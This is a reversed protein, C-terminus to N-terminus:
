STGGQTPPTPIAAPTTSTTTPIPLRDAQPSRWKGRVAGHALYACAALSLWAGFGIGVHRAAVESAHGVLANGFRALTGPISGAHQDVTFADGSSVAYLLSGCFLMLALPLVPALWALRHRSLRPALASGLVALCLIGFPLTIADGRNVGTFLRAPRLILSALDFFHFHLRLPGVSTALTDCPFWGVFVAALATWFQWPLPGGRWRIAALGGEPRVTADYQM